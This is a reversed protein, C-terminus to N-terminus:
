LALRLAHRRPSAPWGSLLDRSLELAADSSEDIAQRAVADIYREDEAAAGALRVLAADIRPNLQRLLPLVENRVRNRRYDASANTEDEIPTLRAADCYALTDYRTIRLLPRILSLADHGKAPWSSKAAMGSLGALGSGRVLHLLLTEAQDSATHGTAVTGAGTEAAVNALFAYRQRRAADELSLKNSQSLARADGRGVQVPLCLSAALGRVFAEDRQAAEPGRLGHDFHAVQLSLRQAKALRSMILLLATSDAGGSVAIVVRGDAPLMANDLLFRRVNAQLRKELASAYGSARDMAKAKTM